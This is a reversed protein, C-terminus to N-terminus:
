SQTGSPPLSVRKMVAQEILTLEHQNEVKNGLGGFILDIISFAIIPDIEMVINGKLPNMEIVGLTTPYPISRLFEEYTLCDVSAVHFHIYKRFKAFFSTTILRAFTEHITTMRNIQDRSFIDPRKFDYIKIKRSGAAPKFNESETTGKNIADLLKDIKDQSLVDTM